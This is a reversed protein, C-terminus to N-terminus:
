KGGEFHAKLKNTSDMYSLIIKINNILFLFCIELGPIFKYFFEDFFM